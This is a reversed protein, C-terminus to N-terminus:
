RGCHTIGCRAFSFFASLPSALLDKGVNRNLCQPSRQDSRPADAFTLAPRPVGHGADRTSAIERPSTFPCLTCLFFRLACLSFAAELFWGSSLCWWAGSVFLCLLQVEPTLKSGVTVDKSQKFSFDNIFVMFSLSPLPHTQMGYRCRILKM